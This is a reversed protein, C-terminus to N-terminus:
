DDNQTEEKKNKCLWSAVSQSDAALVKWAAKMRPDDSETSLIPFQVTEPQNFVEPHQFAKVAAQFRNM